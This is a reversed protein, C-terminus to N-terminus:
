GSVALLVRVFLVSVVFLVSTFTCPVFHCLMSVTKIAHWQRFTETAGEMNSITMHVCLRVLALRLIIGNKYDSIKSDGDGLEARQLVHRPKGRLVRIVNSGIAM